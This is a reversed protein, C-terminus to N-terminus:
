SHHEEHRHRAEEEMLRSETIRRAAEKELDDRDRRTYCMAATAEKGELSAQRAQQYTCTGRARPLSFRAVSDQHRRCRLTLHHAPRFPRLTRSSGGWGSGRVNAAVSAAEAVQAGASRAVRLQADTVLPREHPLV